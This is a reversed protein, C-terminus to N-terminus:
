ATAKKRLYRKTRQATLFKSIYPTMQTISAKNAELQGMFGAWRKQWKPDAPDDGTSEETFEKFKAIKGDLYARAVTEAPWIQRDERGVVNSKNVCLKNHRVTRLSEVFARIVGEAESLPKEGVEALFSNWCDDSVDNSEQCYQKYYHANGCRIFDYISQVKWQKPVAIHSETEVEQPPLEIRQLITARPKEPVALVEEHVHEIVNTPAVVTKIEKKRKSTEIYNRRVRERELIKRCREVKEDYGLTSVDQLFSHIDSKHLESPTGFMDEHLNLYEQLKNNELMALVEKAKLHKRQDGGNQESRQKNNAHLLAKIKEGVHDDGERKEHIDRLKSIFVDDKGHERCYDIAQQINTNFLIILKRILFRDTPASEPNEEKDVSIVQPPKTEPDTSGVRYSTLAPNFHISNCKHYFIGIPIDAKSANCKGCCPRCNALIYGVHNNVRDIGNVHQPTTPLGCLYCPQKKLENYEDKTLEFVLKRKKANTTYQSYHTNTISILQPYMLCLGQAISKGTSTYIAVSSCKNVFEQITLTHKMRNCTTCCSVVNGDVYHKSNDVRDIGNLTDIAGCYFCKQVVIEAFQKLSLTFTYSRDAAGKICMNYSAKISTTRNLCRTIEDRNKNNQLIVESCDKCRKLIESHPYTNDYTVQCDICKSNNPIDRDFYRNNEIHDNIICQICSLFGEKCQNFCGREISCIKVNNSREYDRYKDRQHKGCYEEEEKELFAKCGEHKCAHKGTKNKSLCSECTLATPSELVSNCGRFFFRCPKKGDKVLADYEKDRQHKTCYGDSDVTTAPICHLGKRPGQKIIGHCLPSDMIYTPHKHFIEGFACVDENKHESIVAFSM